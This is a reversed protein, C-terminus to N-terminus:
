LITTYINIRQQQQYFFCCFISNELLRLYLDGGHGEFIQARGVAAELARMTIKRLLVLASDMHVDLRLMSASELM